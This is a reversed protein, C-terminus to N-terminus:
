FHNHNSHIDNVIHNNIEKDNTFSKPLDIVGQLVGIVRLRDGPKTIGCNELLSDLYMVNDKYKSLMDPTLGHIGYLMVFSLVLKEKKNHDVAALDDAIRSIRLLSVGNIEEYQQQVANGDSDDDDWNNNNRTALDKDASQASKEDGDDVRSDGDYTRSHQAPPTHQPINQAYGTAFHHVDGHKHTPGAVLLVKNPPKGQNGTYGFGKWGKNRAKEVDARNALTWM